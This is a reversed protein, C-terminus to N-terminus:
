EPLKGQHTAVFINTHRDQGGEIYLYYTDEHRALATFWFGNSAPISTRTWVPEDTVTEWHVGDESRALMLEMGSRQVQRYIMVWGDDPTYVVRPQHVFAGAEDTQLIPDSDAHAADTTAPDDYKTWTIGDESTALGIKSTPLGDRNGSFYMWYGEDTKVVSPANVQLADWSGASGPTLIPEPDVTWPGVPSPATARGIAGGSRGGSRSEWTYFYLVWTGDDEVLASSALAAVGAYPVDDTGLVPSESAETWKIGDPSTLYGVQVKAPWGIFGNRFLHFQGDHVLVAGPDTYQGDWSRFDGANTVVPENSALAFLSNEQALLPVTILLLLGMIVWAVIRNM